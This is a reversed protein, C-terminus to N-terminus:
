FLMHIFSINSTEKVKLGRDYRRIKSTEGVAKANAIATKYMEIRELIRSELGTAGSPAAPPTSHSALSVKPAAPTM